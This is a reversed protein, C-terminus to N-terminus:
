DFLDLKFMLYVGNVKSIKGEIKLNYSDDFTYFCIRHQSRKAKWWKISWLACKKPERARVREIYLSLTLLIM